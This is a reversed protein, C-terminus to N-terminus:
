NSIEDPPRKEKDVKKKLMLAAEFLRFDLCHLIGAEAGGRIVIGIIKIKEDKSVCFVPAGSFGDFNEIGHNKIHVRFKFDFLNDREYKSCSLYVLQFVGESSGDGTEQECTPYGAVILRSECNIDRCSPTSYPFFFPDLLLKPEEHHVKLICFDDCDSDYNGDGPDGNFCFAQDFCLARHRMSDDSSYPNLLVKINEVLFEHLVHRATVAFYSDQHKVLFCTGSISAWRGYPSCDTLFLVNRVYKEFVNYDM